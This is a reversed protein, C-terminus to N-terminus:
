NITDADYKSENTKTTADQIVTLIEHERENLDTLIEHHSRINLVQTFIDWSRTPPLTELRREFERLFDAWNAGPSLVLFQQLKTTSARVLTDGPVGSRDVWERPLNRWPMAM